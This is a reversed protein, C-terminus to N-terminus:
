TFLERIKTTISKPKPIIPTHIFNLILRKHLDLYEIHCDECLDYIKTAIDPNNDRCFVSPNFNGILEKNCRDCRRAM